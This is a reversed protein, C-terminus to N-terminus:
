YEIGRRAAIGSKLPHKVDQMRTVYHSAKIMSAPAGRGTIVLELDEPKRRLFALAEKSNIIGRRVLHTFEDLVVLDFGPFLAEIKKLAKLAHERSKSIDAEPHFLPSRIDSFRIVKVKLGELLELEGGDPEKMFQAFLVKLGRSKARVTLGVAATTKGKGGGTYLHIFGKQKM